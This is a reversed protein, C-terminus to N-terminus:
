AWGGDEGRPRERLWRGLEGDVQVDEGLLREVEGEVGLAAERGRRWFGMEAEEHPQALSPFTGFPLWKWSSPM